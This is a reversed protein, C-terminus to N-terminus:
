NIFRLSVAVDVGETEETMELDMELHYSAVTEMVDNAADLVTQPSPPATTPTLTVVQTPTLTTECTATPTDPTPTQTPTTTPTGVAVSTPDIIEATALPYIEEIDLVM